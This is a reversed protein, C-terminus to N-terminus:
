WFYNVPFDKNWVQIPDFVNGAIIIFFEYSSINSINLCTLFYQYSDFLIEVQCYYITGVNNLLQPTFM